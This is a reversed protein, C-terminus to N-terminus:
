FNSGEFGEGLVEHAPVVILFARPDISSVLNQFKLIEKTSLVCMLINKNQGTFGGEGKLITVGRDLDKLIKAKIENSLDSIIYAVRVNRTGELVVDITKAAILLSLVSYLVLIFPSGTESKKFTILTLSIIIFDLIYVITGLTLKKVHKKVWFAVIDLGGTTYSSMFIIGLGVGFLLGGVIAYLSYDIANGTLGGLLEQVIGQVFPNVLDIAFSFFFTGIGSKITFATGFQKYSLFFLPINLLFVLLGLGIYQDGLVYLIIAGLGSIGGMTFRFPVYFLDIAIGSLFSGIVLYLFNIAEKKWNLKYFTALLNLQKYM